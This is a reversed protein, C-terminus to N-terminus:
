PKSDPPTKCTAPMTDSAPAGGDARLPLRLLRWLGAVSAQESALGIRLAPEGGAPEAQYSGFLRDWWPSFFGYNREQEQRRRSHHIRHMGPTVLLWRLRREAVAPLRLNAHSFLAGLNLALTFALVAAPPAGLAVTVVTKYAASVLAEAPHFRLGSTVDLAPDAHHVQHLRWLLPSRHMARHQAYVAADLALFALPLALWDPAALWHLLGLQRGAAWQAALLASLPPLLAVLGASLAALSLNPWWRGAPLARFPWRREALLLLSLTLLAALLRLLAADSM